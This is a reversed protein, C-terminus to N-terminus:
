LTLDVPDHAPLGHVAHAGRRVAVNWPAGLRLWVHQQHLTLSQGPELTREALVAGSPGGRRAEVWCAGATARVVLASSVAKTHRVASVHSVRTTAHTKPVKAAAPAISAGNPWADWVVVAVGVAALIPGRALRLDRRPSPQVIPEVPEPWQDDFEAVFRDADLGLAAAYTRLFARAYTRGPLDVWAEQELAEIYRVRMCTLREADRLDLGRARRAAALSPGIEFV